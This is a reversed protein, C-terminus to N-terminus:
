SLLVSAECLLLEPDGLRGWPGTEKNSDRRRIKDQSVCQQQRRRFGQRERTSPLATALPQGPNLFSVIPEQGPSAMEVMSESSRTVLVSPVAPSPQPVSLETLSIHLNQEVIGPAAAAPDVTSPPWVVLPLDDASSGKEVEQRVYLRNLVLTTGKSRRKHNVLTSPRSTAYNVFSHNEAGKRDGSKLKISRIRQSVKETKRNHNKNMKTTIKNVQGSNIKKQRSRTVTRGQKSDLEDSSM